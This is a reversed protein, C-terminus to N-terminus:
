VMVLHAGRADAAVVAPGAMQVFDVRGSVLAAAATPSGSLYDLIVDVGNRAFYGGEKTVWAVAQSGTVAVWLMTAQPSPTSGAVPGALALAAGLIVAAVGRAM